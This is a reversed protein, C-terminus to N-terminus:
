DRGGDPPAAAEDPGGDSLVIPEPPISLFDLGFTVGSGGCGFQFGGASFWARDIRVSGQCIVDDTFTDSDAYYVPIPAAALDDASASAILVFDGWRPRSTDSQVPACSQAAPYTLCVYPDPPGGLPDWNDGAVTGSRATVQFLSRGILECAHTQLNCQEFDHCGGCPGRDCGAALLAAAVLPTFV